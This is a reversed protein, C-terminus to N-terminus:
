KKVTDLEDTLISRYYNKVGEADMTSLTAGQVLKLATKLTERQNLGLHRQLLRLTTKSDMDLWVDLHWGENERKKLRYNEQRKANSDGM